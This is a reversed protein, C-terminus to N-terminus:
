LGDVSKMISVVAHYGLLICSLYSLLRDPPKDSYSNLQRSLQTSAPAPHSSIHSVPYHQPTTNPEFSLPRVVIVCQYWQFYSIFGDQRLLGFRNM